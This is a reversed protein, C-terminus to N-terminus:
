CGTLAMVDLLEDYSPSALSVSETLVDDCLEGVVDLEESRFSM